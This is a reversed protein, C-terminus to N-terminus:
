PFLKFRKLNIKPNFNYIRKARVVDVACQDVVVMMVDMMAVM